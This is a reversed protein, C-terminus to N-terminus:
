KKEESEIQMDVQHDLDLLTIKGVGSHNANYTDDDYILLEFILENSVKKMDLIQYKKDKRMYLNTLKGTNVDLSYVESGYEITGYGFGAVIILHENDWWEIIMPTYQRENNIVEYKVIENTKINEVYVQHIGFDVDKEPAIDIAASHKGDTSNKWMIEYNPLAQKTVISSKFQLPLNKEKDVEGNGISQEISSKEDKDMALSSNDSVKYGTDKKNKAVNEDSLEYIATDNKSTESKYNGGVFGRLMMPIFAVIAVTAVAYSLYRNKYKKLNFLIKNSTRKSYRNKDISNMINARSSNFEMGDISLVSRFARDLELEEEYLRRCSQCEEMHKELAIKLDNSINGLMYDELRKKFINCNM